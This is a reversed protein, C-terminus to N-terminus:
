QRAKVPQRVVFGFLNDFGRLDSYELGKLYEPHM